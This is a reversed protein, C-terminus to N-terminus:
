NLLEPLHAIRPGLPKTVAAERMADPRLLHRPESPNSEKVRVGRRIGTGVRAM